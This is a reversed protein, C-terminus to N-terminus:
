VLRRWAACTVAAAIAVAGGSPEPVRITWATIPGGVTTTATFGQSTTRRLLILLRANMLGDLDADQTPLAVGTFTELPTLDTDPSTVSKDLVVSVQAVEWDDRARRVFAGATLGSAEVADRFGSSSGSFPGNDRIVIRGDTGQTSVSADPVDLRTSLVSDEYTAGFPPDGSVATPAALSDYTITGRAVQGSQFTDEALASAIQLEAEFQLELPAAVAATSLCGLAVVRALWRNM